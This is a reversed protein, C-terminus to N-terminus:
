MQFTEPSIIICFETLIDKLKRITIPPTFYEKSKLQGLSNVFKIKSMFFM